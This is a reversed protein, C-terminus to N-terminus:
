ALLGFIGAPIKSWKGAHPPSKMKEEPKHPEPDL